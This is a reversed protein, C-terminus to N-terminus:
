RNRELRLVQPHEVDLEDLWVGLVAETEINLVEFREPLVISGLWVGDASLIQWTDPDERESSGRHRRLWLAGSGDVVIDEYAPRTAPTPLEEGMAGGYAEREARVEDDTLALPFDRIRLVRVLDGAPSLEEVQMEDSEGVFIRGGGTAIQSAKGFLPGVSLRGGYPTGRRM